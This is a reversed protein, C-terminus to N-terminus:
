NIFELEMLPLYNRLCTSGRCPEQCSSTKTLRVPHKPKALNVELDSMKSSTNLFTFAGLRHQSVTGIVKNELRIPEAAIVHVTINIM